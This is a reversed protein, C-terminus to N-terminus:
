NTMRIGDRVQRSGSLDNLKLCMLRMKVRADLLYDGEDYEASSLELAESSPRATKCATGAWNELM